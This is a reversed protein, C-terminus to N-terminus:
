LPVWRSVGGMSTGFGALGGSPPGGSTLGPEVRSGGTVPTHANASTHAARRGRAHDASIRQARQQATEAAIYDWRPTWYNQIECKVTMESDSWDLNVGSVRFYRLVGMINGRASAVIARSLNEDLLIAQVERVAQSFPLQSTRNLTSVIPSNHDLRSSDVLIEIPDGVRLRIMDPDANREESTGGGYSCLGAAEIDGKIEGRGIQEYLCIAISVLQRMDTIGHVPVSLIESSEQGGISDRIDRGHTSTLFDQRGEATNRPPWYAEMMRAPHHGRHPTSLNTNVIRVTKPKAHGSYQRTIKLSKIDRGYVLRRIGWSDGSGDRRKENPRFPTDTHERRLAEFLARGPRIILDRGVFSPICGVLFCYRTIVDWFNLGSSGGGAASGGGGAGRRHRPIHSANGPSPIVGDEFQDPNCIVRIPFPLKKIQDHEHLIQRVLVDITKSCDLRSLISTQPARHRHRGAPTPHATTGGDRPLSQGAAVEAASPPQPPPAPAPHAPQAVTGGATHTHRSPTGHRRHQDRPTVLPSDLLLGRLDRGELHVEGGDEGQDVSWKDVLGVLRLHRDLTRGQPTRTVLISRRVGPSTERQIGESFAGPTVTGAYIEVRAAVITRPDIPLEKYDFVLKFTAAQTHGQFDISCKRPVRNMIQAGISNPQTVLPENQFSDGGENVRIFLKDEFKLILHVVLSPYSTVQGGM